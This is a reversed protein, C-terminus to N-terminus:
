TPAPTEEASTRWQKAYDLFFGFILSFAEKKLRLLTMLEEVDGDFKVPRVVSPNAPDPMIQVCGMLEDMLMKADVPSAAALARFGFSAMAAAGRAVINDPIDLGSRALAMLARVAWFEAGAASMETVLFKKGQDRGDETITVIATNRAM